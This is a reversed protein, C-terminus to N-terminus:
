GTSWWSRARPPRALDISNLIDFDSGEADIKILDIGGPARALYDGIMTAPVTIRRDAPGYPSEGLGSLGVGRKNFTM